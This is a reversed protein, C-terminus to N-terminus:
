EGIIENAMDLVQRSLELGIKEGTKKNLFLRTGLPPMVGIEGPSQEQELINRAMSAAQSGISTTDSDVALFVGMRAVNESHGICVLRDKLCRDNLWSINDLTYIVPDALIWFSDIRAEIKKFAYKFHRPHKIPVAELTLGLKAAAERAEAVLNGSHAESYIMGISRVGPSFMTMNFLQTGGSVDSAIGAINRRGELLDYKRWNLVMAFIVPLDPREATWLKAAYAAKAGLAFILAPRRAFIEDMIVPAREIEGRLNFVEIRNRVEAEFSELPRTYVAEDDSLLVAVIGDSGQAVGWRAGLVQLLVFTGVFILVLRNLLLRGIM